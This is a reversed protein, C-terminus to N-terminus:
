RALWKEYDAVLRNHHDVNCWIEWECIQPAGDKDKLFYGFVTKGGNGYRMREVSFPNLASFNIVPKQDITVERPNKKDRFQQLKEELCAVKVALEDVIADHKKKSILGFM